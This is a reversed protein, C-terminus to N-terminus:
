VAEDDLDDDPDTVPHPMLTPSPGYSIESARDQGPRQEHGCLLCARTAGVVCRGDCRPCREAM